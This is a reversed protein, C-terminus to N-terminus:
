VAPISFTFVAGGDPGNEATLSGGMYTAASQAVSLGIGINGRSGKFMPQFLVAMEKAGIGRGDDAVKIRVQDEAEEVSVVVRSSAYRVANSVLNDLVTEMLSKTGRVSAETKVPLLTLAVNKM